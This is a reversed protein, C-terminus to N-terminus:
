HRHHSHFLLATCNLLISLPLQHPFCCVVFYMCTAANRLYAEMNLTAAIQRRVFRVLPEQQQQQQQRPSEQQQQGRRPSQQVQPSNLPPQQPQKKQAQQKQASSPALPPLQLKSTPSSLALSNYENRYKSVTKWRQFKNQFQRRTRTGKGGYIDTKQECVASLNCHDIGGHALIDVVFQKQLSLSLGTSKQKSGSSSRISPSPESESLSAGDTWDADELDSDEEEFSRAPSRSYLTRPSLTSRAVGKQSM